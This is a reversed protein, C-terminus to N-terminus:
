RRIEATGGEFKNCIRYITVFDRSKKTQTLTAWFMELFDKVRGIMIRECEPSKKSDIGQGAEASFFKHCVRPM